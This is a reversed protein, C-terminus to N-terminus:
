LIIYVVVVVVEVRVRRIIRHGLKRSDRRRKSYVRTVGICTLWLVLRSEERTGYRM